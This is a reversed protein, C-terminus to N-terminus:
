ARGMYIKSMEALIAPNCLTLNEHTCQWTEVRNNFVATLPEGIGHTLITLPTARDGYYSTHKM